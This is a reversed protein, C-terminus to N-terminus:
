RKLGEEAMLRDFDLPMVDKSYSLTKAKAIVRLAADREARLAEHSDEVAEIHGVIFGDVILACRDALEETTLIKTESM